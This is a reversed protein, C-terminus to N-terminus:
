CFLHKFVYVFLFGITHYFSPRIEIAKNKVCDDIAQGLALERPSALHLKWLLVKLRNKM